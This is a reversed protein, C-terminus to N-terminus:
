AKLDPLPAVRDLYETADKNIRDLVAKRQEETATTWSDNYAYWVKEKRVYWAPRSASTLGDDDFLIASNPKEPPTQQLTDLDRAFGWTGRLLSDGAVARKLVAIAEDRFGRDLLCMSLSQLHNMAVYFTERSSAEGEGIRLYYSYLSLLITGETTLGSDHRKWAIENFVQALWQQTELDVSSVSAMQRNMIEVFAPVLDRIALNTEDMRLIMNAFVALLEPSVEQSHNLRYRLQFVWSPLKAYIRKSEDKEREKAKWLWFRNEWSMSTDGPLDEVRWPAARWFKTTNNSLSSTILNLGDPSFSAVHIAADHGKLTLLEKGSEADWLKATGDFSATLIRKNNPGYQCQDVTSGHGRLTLLENGNEADWVRATSDNSGTVIRRADLSHRSDFVSVQHGKLTLLLEGNEANLVKVVPQDQLNMVLQRGNPSYRVAWTLGSPEEIKLIQKGSEADWIIARKNDVNAVIRRGDPSFSPFMLWRADSQITLIEEGTEANWVVLRNPSVRAVIRRGDSSYQSQGVIKTGKRLTLLTQGTQADVVELWSSGSPGISTLIRRGDPSYFPRIGHSPPITFPTEEGLAKADWIKTTGDGSGTLIWQKDPSFRASFIPAGHGKLTAIEKGTEVDWIKATKDDSCTVINKGDPSFIARYIWGTHGELTFLEKGIKADWLKATKDNGGATLIYRGDPSFQIEYVTEKHGRLTFIEKGSEADWVKATKDASGTVIRRGDPSFASDSVSGAHGALTFVEKGTESSWLKATNDGTHACTLVFRTDPSFHASNIGAKHGELSFKEKGTEADWIKTLGDAARTVVLRGDPSFEGEYITDKHGELLHIQAGTEANWIRATKDKSVTLVRRSDPSFEFAVVSDEPSGFSRAYRHTENILYGWEWNRLREPTEWLIKRAQDYRNDAMYSQAFVLSSYYLTTEAKDKEAALRQRADDATARAKEAVVRADEAALRAEEAGLRLDKERLAVLGLATIVVIALLASWLYLRRRRHAQEVLLRAREANEKARREAERAARREELTRLRQALEGASRLRRAPDGDVSLAIDERLLDDGIDREWGPGLPKELDGVAVQYCMVGLSYVDSQISPAKGAMLEPAMYLRTGTRSALETMQTPAMTSYGLATVGAAELMERDLLQGIGFDTLQAQLTGDKKENILVNTPKVDKHIVGVSHAAALAEAVQAVLELRTKLPVKDIGGQRKSWDALDGGATYEMELFFPPEELQVDYLKAIDPREGLVEKMLRFLTLERKLSRLRKATFCFKFIRIDRTKAHKALWVEGFGGEGIKRDLILGKRNPIELGPAPRWGLTVEDGPAIARRVKESDKPPTLPAKGSVGVEFVEVPEDVGKFLYPGHA